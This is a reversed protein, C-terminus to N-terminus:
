AQGNKFAFYFTFLFCIKSYNVVFSSGWVIKDINDDQSIVLKVKGDCLLGQIVFYM